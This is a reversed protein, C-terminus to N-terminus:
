TVFVGKCIKLKPIFGEKLESNSVNVFLTSESRSPLYMVGNEVRNLKKFPYKRDDVIERGKKRLRNVFDVVSEGEKQFMRGLEGQLQFLSKSPIYIKKLKESLETINAPLTSNISAKVKVGLKGGYILKVLNGEAGAPLVSKAEDCCKLFDLLEGPNGEFKPVFALADNLSINQNPALAMDDAVPVVRVPLINGPNAILPPNQNVIQAIIQEALRFNEYNSRQVPNRPDVPPVPAIPAAPLVPAIPAVPAVPLIPAIPAAPAVPLIPAIPATPVVPTVPANNGLVVPVSGQPQLDDEDSSIEYDYFSKGVGSDATRDVGQPSTFQFKPKRTKVIPLGAAYPADGHKRLSYPKSEEEGSM